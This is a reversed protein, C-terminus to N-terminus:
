LAEKEKTLVRASRDIDTTTIFETTATVIDIISSLIHVINHVFCESKVQM